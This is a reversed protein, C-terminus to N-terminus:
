MCSFFIKNKNLLTNTIQFVKKIDASQLESNFFEQKAKQILDIVHKHHSLYRQRNIENNHKKLIRELRRRQRRAEHIDNNYWQHKPRLTRTKTEVPAFKDWGQGLQYCVSTTFVDYVPLRTTRRIVSM